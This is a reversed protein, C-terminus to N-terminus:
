ESSSYMSVINVTPPFFGTPHQYPLSSVPIEVGNVTVGVVNRRQYIGVDSYIIFFFFFVVSHM